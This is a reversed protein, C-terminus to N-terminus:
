SSRPPKSPDKPPHSSRQRSICLDTSPPLADMGTCIKSWWYCESAAATLRCLGACSSRAIRISAITVRCLMNDGRVAVGYTSSGYLTSHFVFFSGLDVLSKLLFFDSAVCFYLFLAYCFYGCLFLSPVSLFFNACRSYKSSAGVGSAEDSHCYIALFASSLRCCQLMCSRCNPYCCGQFTQTELTM